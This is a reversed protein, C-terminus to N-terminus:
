RHSFLAVVRDHGIGFRFRRDVFDSASYRRQGFIFTGHWPWNLSHREGEQCGRGDPPLM